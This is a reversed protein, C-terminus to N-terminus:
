RAWQSGGLALQEPLEPLWSKMTFMLLISGVLVYSIMVQSAKTSIASEPDPPATARARNPACRESRPAERQASPEAVAHAGVWRNGSLRRWLVRGQESLTRGLMDKNDVCLWTDDYQHWSDKGPGWTKAASFAKGIKRPCAGHTGAPHAHVMAVYNISSAALRQAAARDKIIIEQCFSRLRAHGSEEEPTSPPRLTSTLTVGGPARSDRQFTFVDYVEPLANIYGWMGKERAWRPLPATKLGLFSEYIRRIKSKEPPFEHMHDEWWRYVSQRTYGEEGLTELLHRRMKDCEELPHMSLGSVQMDLRSDEGCAGRPTRKCLAFSLTREVHLEAGIRSRTAFEGRLAYHFHVHIAPETRHGLEVREVADPFHAHIGLLFGDIFNCAISWLDDSAQSDNVSRGMDRFLILAAPVSLKDTPHRRSTAEDERLRERGNAALCPITACQGM